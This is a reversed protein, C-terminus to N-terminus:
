SGRYKVWAGVCESAFPDKMIANHPQMRPKAKRM